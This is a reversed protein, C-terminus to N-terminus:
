LYVSVKLALERGVSNGAGVILAKKGSIERKTLLDMSLLAWVGDVVTYYLLFGLYELTAFLGYGVAYIIQFAYTLFVILDQKEDLFLIHGTSRKFIVRVRCRRM